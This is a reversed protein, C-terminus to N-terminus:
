EKEEREAKEEDSMRIRTRWKKEREAKEEDSM